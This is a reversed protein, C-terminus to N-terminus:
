KVTKIIQINKWSKIMSILSIRLWLGKRRESCPWHPFVTEHLQAAGFHNSEECLGPVGRMNLRLLSWRVSLLCQQISTVLELTWCSRICKWLGQFVPSNKDKTCFRRNPKCGNKVCSLTLRLLKIWKPLLLSVTLQMQTFFLPPINIVCYNFTCNCM